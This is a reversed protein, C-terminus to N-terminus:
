ESTWRKNCRRVKEYIDLQEQTYKSSRREMQIELFRMVLKAQGQKIVSYPWIERLLVYILPNASLSLQFIANRRTENRHKTHYHSTNDTRLMERFRAVFAEKTNSISIYSELKVGKYDRHKAIGITGEADIACALWAKEWDQLNKLHEYEVPKTRPRHTQLYQARKVIATWARGGLKAIIVDPEAWGYLERLIMDDEVKWKAMWKPRTQQRCKKCLHAGRKLWSPYCNSQNLENGCVKCLPEPRDVEPALTVAM